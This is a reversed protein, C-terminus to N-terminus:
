FYSYLLRYSVDSSSISLEQSEVRELRGIADYFHTIRRYPQKNKWDLYEIVKRKKNEYSYVVEGNSQGDKAFWKERILNGESDQETLIYNSVKDWIDYNTKKILRNNADYEYLTRERQNIVPMVWVESKIRGDDYYNFLKSRLNRYGTASKNYTVIKSIRGGDHEYEDYDGITGNGWTNTVKLLKNKKDYEYDFTNMIYESFLAKRVVQRIRSENAIDNQKCGNLLIFLLLFIFSCRKM